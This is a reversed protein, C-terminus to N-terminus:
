TCLVVCASVENAKKFKKMFDIWGQGVNKRKKPDRKGASEEGASEGGAVASEGETGRKRKGWQSPKPKNAKGSDKKNKQKTMNKKRGSKGRNDDKCRQQTTSEAKDPDFLLLGARGKAKLHDFIVECPKLKDARKRTPGLTM